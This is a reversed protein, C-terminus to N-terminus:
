RVLLRDDRSLALANVTRTRSQMVHSEIEVLSRDRQTHFSVSPVITSSLVRGARGM